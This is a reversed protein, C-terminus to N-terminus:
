KHKIDSYIPKNHKSAKKEKNKHKMMTKNAKEQKSYSKNKKVKDTERKLYVDETRCRQHDCKLIEFIKKM